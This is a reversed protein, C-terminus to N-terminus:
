ATAAEKEDPCLDTQQGYHFEDPFGLCEAQKKFEELHAEDLKGSKTFLYLNKTKKIEGTTSTSVAEDSWVMCDPCTKLNMGTHEQSTINFTFTVVTGNATYTSNVSGEVCKDGIKDAFHLTLDESGAIPTLELWSSTVSKLEKLGEETSTTGVHYIWKGSLQSRDELTKTLDECDSDAAALSSLALLALCFKVSM